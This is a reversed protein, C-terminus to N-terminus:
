WREVKPIPVGTAVATMKGGTVWGINVKPKYIPFPAAISYAIDSSFGFLDATSFTNEMLTRYMIEGTLKDGGHKRAAVEVARVLLLAQCIGAGVIASWGTKLGYKATLMDYFKKPESPDPSAIVGSQVEYDGELGQIGGMAKAMFTPSNHMSFVIPVNRGLAQMARKVAVAQQPTAPAIIAEAGANFVRRVQLTMDAPQPEVYVVEVLDVTKPNAKAWIATGRGMDAFTPSAETTVMAIKVPRNGGTRVRQFWDIFGAFEHVFTPRTSLIWQNPRWGFGNSASGLIMVVKDNPLRQQLAATDPGGLAFGILPKAALIGPWLSATQATDYRTDYAKIDLKVGIRSGIEANWWTGVSERAGTFLPMVTAFPGSFDALSPILYTTTQRPPAAFLAPYAAAGALAIGADRRTINM